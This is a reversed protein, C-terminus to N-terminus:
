DLAKVRKQARVARGGAALTVGRSRDHDLAAM